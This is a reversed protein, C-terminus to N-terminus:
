NIVVPCEYVHFFQFPLCFRVLLFELRFLEMCMGPKKLTRAPELEASAVMHYKLLLENKEVNSFRLCSWEQWKWRV